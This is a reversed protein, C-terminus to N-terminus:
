ATTMFMRCETLDQRLLVGNLEMYNVTIIWLKTSQKGTTLLQIIIVLNHNYYAYNLIM